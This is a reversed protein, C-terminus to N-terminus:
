FMENVAKLLTEKSQKGWFFNAVLGDKFIFIFPVSQISLRKTLNNNEDINIRYINAKDKLRLAIDKLIPLQLLCTSCWPAWFYVMSTGNAVNENFNSENLELLNDLM